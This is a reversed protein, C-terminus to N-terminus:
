KQRVRMTEAFTLDAYEVIDKDPQNLPGVRWGQDQEAIIKALRTRRRSLRYALKCEVRIGRNGRRDQFSGIMQGVLIKDFDGVGVALLMQQRDRASLGDM